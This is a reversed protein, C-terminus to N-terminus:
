VMSNDLALPFHNGEESALVSMRWSGLQYLSQQFAVFNSLGNSHSPSRSRMQM